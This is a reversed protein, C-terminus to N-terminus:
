FSEDNDNAVGALPQLCFLAQAAKSMQRDELDKEAGLCPGTRVLKHTAFYPGAPPYLAYLYQETERSQTDNLFKVEIDPQLGYMQPSYGSPLIYFGKTSFLAIKSNQQWIEGEQFSGKGFSTEGVLLARGYDRLAGALLESASASGRNILLAMAGSYLLEKESFVEEREREPDFFHLEFLKRKPGLFLGAMCAAEEIQGGSNDRLDVLLGEVQALIVSKLAKEALECSGKSFKNISLVGLKRKKAIIEYSIAPIEVDKRIIDFEIDEQGRHVKLRIMPEEAKLLENVKSFTLSRVDQDNVTLIFDGRKLGIESAPSQSYVKRVFYNQATKSIVLGLARTRPSSKSIVDHFYNVPLIYTHPDKFVSLFANLGAAVLSSMEIGASPLHNQLIEEFNLAKSEKNSLFYKRWPELLQRETLELGGVVPRVELRDGQRYLQQDVRYLVASVSNVCSLFYRLSSGCTHDQVLETLDTARLGTETWYRDMSKVQPQDRMQDSTRSYGFIVFFIILILGWSGGRFM